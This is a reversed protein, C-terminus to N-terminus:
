SLAALGPLQASLQNLADQGIPENLREVARGLAAFQGATPELPVLALAARLLGVYAAALDAPDAPAPIAGLYSEVRGRAVRWDVVGPMQAAVQLLQAIQGAAALREAALRPTGAPAAPAPTPSAPTAIEIIKPLAAQLMADLERAYTMWAGLEMRFPDPVDRKRGALEGLLYVRTASRPYRARLVLGTGSDIAIILAAHEVLADDISRAQHAGIDLSMHVMTDRAETEAPAGDHGLVGASGVSWDGSHAALLRRLLAAAMPARGTDAAGVLLITAM